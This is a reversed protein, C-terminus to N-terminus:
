KMRPARIFQSHSVFNKLTRPNMLGTMSDAGITKSIFSREMRINLVESYLVAGRFDTSSQIERDMCGTIILRKLMRLMIEKRSKHRM